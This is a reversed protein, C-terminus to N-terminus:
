MLSLLHCSFFYSKMHIKSLSVPLMIHRNCYKGERGEYKVYRRNLLVTLNHMGKLLVTLKEASSSCLAFLLM